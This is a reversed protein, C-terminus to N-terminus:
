ATAGKCLASDRDYADRAATLKPVLAGLRDNQRSLAYADHDYASGIADGGIHLAQAQIDIVTDADALASVCSAPPQQTANGTGCGAVALLASAGIVVMKVTRKMDSVGREM